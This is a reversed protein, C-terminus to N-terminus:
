METDVLHFGEAIMGIFDQSRIEEEIRQKEESSSRYTDSSSSTLDISSSGRIRILSGHHNPPAGESRHCTIASSQEQYAAIVVGIVVSQMEQLGTETISAHWICVAMSPVSGSYNHQMVSAANRPKRQDKQRRKAQCVEDLAVEAIGVKSFHKTLTSQPMFKTFIDSPNNLTGINHVTIVRSEVLDQLHIYRLGMHKPKKSMGLKSVMAKGSASDTHLHLKIGEVSKTMGLMIVSQLHFLDNAASTLAYLEAEASSQAITAQTRSYHM